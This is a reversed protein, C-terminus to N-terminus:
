AQNKGLWYQVTSASIECPKVKEFKVFPIAYKLFVDLCFSGVEVGGEGGGM